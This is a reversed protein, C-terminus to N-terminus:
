RLGTGGSGDGRQGLLVEEGAGGLPASWDFGVVGSENKLRQGYFIRDRRPRAARRGWGPRSQMVLLAIVAQKKGHGHGGENAAKNDGPNM